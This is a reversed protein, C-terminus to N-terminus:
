MELNCQSEFGHVEDSTQRWSMRLHLNWSLCLSRTARLDSCGSLSSFLLCKHSRTDRAKQRLYVGHSSISPEPWGQRSWSLSGFQKTRLSKLARQRGPTSTWRRAGLGEKKTVNDERPDSVRPVGLWGGITTNKHRQPVKQFSRPLLWVWESMRGSQTM